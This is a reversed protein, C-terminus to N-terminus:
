KRFTTFLKFLKALDDQTINPLIYKELLNNFNGGFKFAESEWDYVKELKGSDTQFTAPSLYRIKNKDIYLTGLNPLKSFTREDLAEIMNFHLSLKKLSEMDDFAGAEISAIYNFSLDVNEVNRMNKFYHDRVITLGCQMAAVEKLNPFKEGIERPLYKVQRNSSIDFFTVTANPESALVYADSGIVQNITCANM